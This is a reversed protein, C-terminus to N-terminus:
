TSAIDEDDAITSELLDIYALWDEYEYSDKVHCKHDVKKIYDFLFKTM